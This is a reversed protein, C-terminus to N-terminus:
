LCMSYMCFCEPVCAIIEERNEIIEEKNKIIEERNEIVEEKNKIIEERNNEREIEDIIHHPMTEIYYLVCHTSILLVYSHLCICM